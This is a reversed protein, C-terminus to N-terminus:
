VARMLGGSDTCGHDAAAGPCAWAIELFALGAGVRRGGFSSRSGSMISGNVSRLAARSRNLTRLADLNMPIATLWTNPHVAGSRHTAGGSVRRLGAHIRRDLRGWLLSM